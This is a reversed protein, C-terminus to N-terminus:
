RNGEHDFRTMPYGREHYFRYRVRGPAKEAESCGVIDIVSLFRSFFAPAVDSLNLLVDQTPLQRDDRILLVPTEDAIDSDVACHPVFSLQAHTWLVRDITEYRVPDPAFILVQRNDKLCDATLRAALKMPDPVNYHFLINTL